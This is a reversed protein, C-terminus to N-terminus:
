GTILRGEMLGEASHPDPFGSKAEVGDIRAGTSTEETELRHKQRSLASSGLLAHHPYM